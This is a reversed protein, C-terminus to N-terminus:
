NPFGGPMGNPNMTQQREKARYAAPNRLLEGADNMKGPTHSLVEAYAKQVELFKAQDVNPSALMVDMAQGYNACAQQYEGRMSLSHAVKAKTVAWEEGPMGPNAMEMKNLSLQLMAEAQQFNGKPNGPKMYFDALKRAALASEMSNEGTSKQTLREAELLMNEAEQMVDKESSHLAALDAIETFAQTTKVEITKFGRLKSLNLVKGQYEKFAGMNGSGAYYRSLGLLNDVAEEPLRDTGSAEYIQASEKLAAEGEKQSDTQMMLGGMQTLVGALRLSSKGESKRLADAIEALDKRTSKMKEVDNNATAEKAAAITDTMRKEFGAPLPMAPPTANAKPKEAELPPLGLCERAKQRYLLAREPNEANEFHKALKEYYPALEKNTPGLEAAMRKMTAYVYNFTEPNEGARKLTDEVATWAALTQKPDKKDEIEGAKSFMAKTHRVMPERAAQKFLDAVTDPKLSPDLLALAASASVTNNGSSLAMHLAPIRSDDGGTLRTHKDNMGTRDISAAAEAIAPDDSGVVKEAAMIASYFLAEKDSNDAKFLEAQLRLNESVLQKASDLRPNMANLARNLTRMAQIEATADTTIIKKAEAKTEKGHAALDVIADFAKIRAAVAEPEKLSRESGLFKAMELRTKEDTKTEAVIWGLNRIAKDREESSLKGYEEKMLADHAAQARQKAPLRYNGSDELLVQSYTKGPPAVFKELKGDRFQEILTGGSELRRVIVQRGDQFQFSLPLSKTKDRDQLMALLDKSEGNHRLIAEAMGMVTSANVKQIGIKLLENAENKLGPRKTYEATEAIAALSNVDPNKNVLITAAAYKVRENSSQLAQLIVETRPDQDLAEQGVPMSKPPCLRYLERVAFEDDLKKASLVEKLIDAKAQNSTTVDPIVDEAVWEVSDRMKEFYAQAKQKMEADPHGQSLAEVVPMALRDGLSETLNLLAKQLDVSDKYGAQGPQPMALYEAELTSVVLTSVESRTMRGAPIKNNLEDAYRLVVAAAFMDRVGRPINPNAVLAAKVTWEVDGAGPGGKRYIEALKGGAVRIAADRNNPGFPEGQSLVIFSLAERAEIGDAGDKDAATLLNKFQQNFRDGVAALADDREKKLTSEWSTWFKVFGPEVSKIAALRAEPLNREDLLDYGNKKWWESGSFKALPRQSDRLMEAKAIEYAEQHEIPRDLLIRPPAAEARPQAHAKVREFADKLLQGDGERFKAPSAKVEDVLSQADKRYGIRSANKQLDALVEAARERDEKLASSFLMRAAALQIREHPDNLLGQLVARRPDDAAELPKSMACSFIAKVVDESTSEKSSLVSQLKAALAQTSAQGDVATKNRLDTTDDRMRALIDRAKDRIGPMVHTSRDDMGPGSFTIEGNEIVKVGGDPTLIRTRSGDSRTDIYDLTKPDFKSNGYWPEKRAKDTDAYWRDTNPDRTWVTKGGNKDTVISQYSQGDRYLLEYTTGDARLVKSVVGDKREARAGGPTTITENGYADKRVYNGTDNEFYPQGRWPNKKEKDTSAYWVDSKGERIMTTTKGDPATFTDKWIKGDEDFAVTRSSKDAYDVTTVKEDGNRTIKSKTKEEAIAELIPIGEQKLYNGCTSLLRRQLEHSETYRPSGDPAPTNHFQRRLAALAAIGADNASIPSGDTGPKLAELADLVKIRGAYPMRDQTTLCMTVLPAIGKKAEPSGNQAVDLLGAAARKVGDEKESMSFCKANSMVIWALARRAQDGEPTKALNILNDFQTNMERGVREIESKQHADITSQCSSVWNLFGGFDKYYKEIHGAVEEKRLNMGDLLKFDSKIYEESGVLSRKNSTLLDRLAVRFREQYEQSSPDLRREGTEQGKIRRLLEPDTEKRLLDLCTDRLGPPNLKVLTDFAANRVLASRDATGGDLGLSKKLLTRTALDNSGVEGLAKAAAARSEATAGKFEMTGPTLMRAFIERAGPKKEDLDNKFGNLVRDADTKQALEAIRGIWDRRLADAGGLPDSANSRLVYSIHDILREQKDKTMLDPNNFYPLVHEFAQQALEPENPQVSKFFVDFLQKESVGLSAAQGSTKLVLAAQFRTLQDAYTDGKISLNDRMREFYKRAYAGAEQQNQGYEAHLSELAALRKEPKPEGNAMLTALALAKLDRQQAQAQPSLNADIPQGAINKLAEQVAMSDRGSLDAQAKLRDLGKLRELAPEDEFRHKEMIEALGIGNSNLIAQMKIQDSAKPDKLVSLLIGGLDNIPAQGHLSKQGARYLLDGAALRMGPPLSAINEKMTKFVNETTLDGALTKPLSGNQVNRALMLLAVSAEAQAKPDSSNKVVNALANIQAVRQPDNAPLKLVASTAQALKGGDTTEMWKSYRDYQDVAFQKNLGNLFEEVQEKKIEKLGGKGDPVRGLVAPLNGDKEALSIMALAGALKDNTTKGNTFADAFKAMAQQRAPDNEPSNKVLAVQKQLEEIRSKAQKDFANISDLEKSALFNRVNALKVEDPLAGKWKYRDGLSEPYGGDARRALNLLGVAAVMKDDDNKADLYETAFKRRQEEKKPDDDKLDATKKALEASEATRKKLEASAYQLARDETAPPRRDDSVYEGARQRRGQLLLAESDWGRLQKEIAPLQHSVIEPIFYFNSAFFTADTGAKLNNVWKPAEKLYAAVSSGEKVAEAAKGAGFVKAGLPKALTSWSIDAMMTYGRVKNFGKGLEGQNEMFQHTFGTMGMLFHFAGRKFGETKMLVPLVEKATLKALEKCTITAATKQAAVLAAKLEITGSVVMGVDMALTAGKGGYHWAKAENAWFNLDKAQLLQMKGDLNITVWDDPKYLRVDSDAEMKAAQGLSVKDKAPDIETWNEKSVRAGNVFTGSKSTDKIFVKGQDFRILAHNDEATPGDFKIPGKKGVAIGEMNKEVNQGNITLAGDKAQMNLNPEAGLTITDSVPNIRRWEDKSIRKGNVFTGSESNDKLYIQGNEDTKVLCHKDEVGPGDMKIQGAKGVSTETRLNEVPQGNITVKGTHQAKGVEYDFLGLYSYGPAYENQKSNVVRIMTQTDGKEDKARVEKASFRFSVQNFPKGNADKEEKPLPMDGWFLMREPQNNAKAIETTAQDVKKGYTEMWQRIKEMKALNEPNDRDLTTPLDLEIGTIKGDVRTVTGPFKGKQLAEDSFIGNSSGTISTPMTNWFLSHAKTSEVSAKNYSAITHAYNRVQLAMGLWEARSAQLQELQKDSMGDKSKWAKLKDDPTNFEEINKDFVNVQWHLKASDIQRAARTTWEGTANVREADALSPAENNALPKLDMKLLGSKLEQKFLQDNEARGSIDRPVPIPCGPPLAINRDTLATAMDTSADNLFGACHNYVARSAPGFQNRALEAKMEKVTEPLLVSKGDAGGAATVAPLLRDITVALKKSLDETIKITQPPVELKEVRGDSQKQKEADKKDLGLLERVHAKVHEPTKADTLTQEYVTKREAETLKNARVLADAAVLRGAGSEPDAARWKLFQVADALKVTDTRESAPKVIETRAPTGGGRGGGTAPIYKTQAPIPVIRAGLDENYSGDPKRNLALLANAAAARDEPDSADFFTKVAQDILKKRDDQNEPHKLAEQTRKLFGDARGDLYDRVQKATTDINETYAEKDTVTHTGARGGGTQHTVKAHYVSRTGLVDPMSGDPKGCLATLAKAAALKEPSEHTSTQFVNVLHKVYSKRDDSDAPTKLLADTRAQIEPASRELFQLLESARLPLLEHHQEKEVVTRSPSGGGRGGGSAPIYRTKEPILVDRQAIVDPMNGDAGRQLLLLHRAAAVKEAYTSPKDFRDVLNKVLQQRIPNDAPLTMAEAVDATIKDSLGDRYQEKVIHNTLSDSVPQFVPEQKTPAVPPVDKNDDPKANKGPTDMTDAYMWEDPDEDDAHVDDHVEPAQKQDPPHDGEGPTPKKLTPDATM